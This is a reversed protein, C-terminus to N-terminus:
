RVPSPPAGSHHPAGGHRLGGRHGAAGLRLGLRVTAAGLTVLALDRRARASRRAPYLHRPVPAHTRALEHLTPHM